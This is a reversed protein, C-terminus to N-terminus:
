KAGGGRLLIEAYRGPGKPISVDRIANFIVFDRV